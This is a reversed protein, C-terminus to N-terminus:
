SKIRIDDGKLQIIKTNSKDYLRSFIREEYRNLLDKPMLNTTFISAKNQRFRETLIIHLYEKTVNKFMPETGLDDLILLDANLINNLHMEKKEIDATHFRLFANHMDYATIFTVMDGKQMVENALAKIIETKGTGTAGYFLINKIKATKYKKSYEKFYQSIKLLIDCQSVNRIKEISYNDLDIDNDIKVGCNSQLQKFLATNVCECIKGNHYGTDKCIKCDYKMTFPNLNLKKALNVLSQCLANYEIALNKDDSKEAIEIMLAKRQNEMKAFELNQMAKKYDKEKLDERYSSIARKSNIISKILKSKNM